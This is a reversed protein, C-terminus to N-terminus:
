RAKGKLNLNLRILGANILKLARAALREMSAGRHM